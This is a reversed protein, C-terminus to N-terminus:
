FVKFYTFHVKIKEANVSNFLAHMKPNFDGIWALETSKIYPDRCMVEYMKMIMISYVGKNHYEPIVGFIIGRIKNVKVIKQSFFFKIKGIWNMNGNVYRFLQNVDILSLYFGVPRDGDYMFWLLDERIIPKMEMFLDNVRAETMPVFHDHTSWAENYIITFDKVFRDMELLNLHEAKLSSREQLRDTFRKYKDYDIAEPRAESTTQEISKTFGYSELLQQYYPFNYNEQYSPNKFGEVLLGWYKDREGFNIPAEVKNYGKGKLWNTATDLLLNAVEQKNICDFFGIGIQQLDKSYFAAVKGVVKNGDSVLWRKAEGSDFAKNKTPNFINEIDQDIHSIFQDDEKYLDRVFTHFTKIQHSSIVDIVRLQM